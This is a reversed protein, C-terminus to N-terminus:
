LFHFERVQVFKFTRTLGVLFTFLIFELSNKYFNTLIV